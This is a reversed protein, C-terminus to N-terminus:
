NREGKGRIPTQGEQETFHVEAKVKPDENLTLEKQEVEQAMSRFRSVRKIIRDFLGNGKVESNQSEKQIKGSASNNKKKEIKEKNHSDEGQHHRQRSRGGEAESM